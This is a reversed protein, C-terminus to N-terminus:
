FLILYIFYYLSEINRAYRSLNLGQLAFTISITLGLWSPPNVRGFHFVRAPTYANWFVCIMRMNYKSISCVQTIHLFLLFFYVEFMFYLCYGLISTLPVFFTHKICQRMKSFITFIMDYLLWNNYVMSLIIYWESNYMFRLPYIFFKLFHLVTDSWYICM